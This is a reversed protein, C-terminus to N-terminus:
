FKDQEAKKNEWIDKEMWESDSSDLAVQLADIARDEWDVFQKPEFQSEADDWANDTAM